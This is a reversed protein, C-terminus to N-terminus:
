APLGPLRDRRHPRLGLGPRHHTEPPGPTAAPSGGPPKELHTWCKALRTNYFVIMAEESGELKAKALTPCAHPQDLAGLRLAPVHRQHHLVRDRRRQPQRREVPWPCVHPDQRGRRAPRGSEESQYLARKGDESRQLKFFDLQQAHGCHICPGPPTASPAASSSPKSPRNARSPPHAPTTPRAIASSLPRAPKPWTPAPRRRRRRKRQRPRDDFLVRRVSLESLNAAAGATPSIAGGTYEKIDNNNNADRSHPKAVRQALAARAAITKDIPRSRTQAAQWHAGALPLQQAVPPRQRRVLQLGCQDPMGM